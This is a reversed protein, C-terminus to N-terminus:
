RSCNEYAAEERAIRRKLREIGVTAGGLDGAHMQGIITRYTQLPIRHKIGNLELMAKEESM